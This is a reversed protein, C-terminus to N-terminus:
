ANLSTEASRPTVRFTTSRTLTLPRLRRLRLVTRWLRTWVGAASRPPTTPPPSSASRGRRWWRAASPASPRRSATAGSLTSERRLAPVVAEGNALAEYVPTGVVGAFALAQKAPAAPVHGRHARAAAPQRARASAARQRHHGRGRDDRVALGRARGRVPAHRAPAHARRGRCAHPPRHAARRRAAPARWSAAGPPGRGPLARRRPVLARVRRQARRRLECRRVSSSRRRGPRVSGPGGTSAEPREVASGRSRAPSRARGTTGSSSRRAAAGAM